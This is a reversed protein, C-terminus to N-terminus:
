TVSCFGWSLLLRDDKWWPELRAFTCGLGSTSPHTDPEELGQAGLGGITGLTLGVWRLGRCECAKLPLKSNRRLWVSRGGVVMAWPKKKKETVHLWFLLSLESTKRRFYGISFHPKHVGGYYLIYNLAWGNTMSNLLGCM